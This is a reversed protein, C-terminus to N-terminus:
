IATVEDEGGLNLPDTASYIGESSLTNDFDFNDIASDVGLDVVISGVTYAGSTFNDLNVIDAGGGVSITIDGGITDGNQLDVNDVGSGGTYTFGGDLTGGTAMDVENAGAGLSIMLLDGIIALAMDIDDANKGGTITVSQNYVGDSDTISNLGNGLNFNASGTFINGIQLAITDTGTGGTYAFDADSLGGIGMETETVTLTNAGNGLSVSVELVTDEAPVVDVVDLSTLYVLDAGQGGTIALAGAITTPSSGGAGAFSFENAILKDASANFTVNGDIVTPTTYTQQFAGLHDEGGTSVRVLNVRTAVVGDGITLAAVNPTASSATATAISDNLYLEDKGAGGNFSVTGGVALTSDSATAASGSVNNITFIDLGNGGDVTIDGSITGNKAGTNTIMLTDNGNNFNVTIGGDLTFNSATSNFDIIVNDNRNSLKLILDGTVQYKGRATTGDTITVENNGTVDILLTQATVGRVTAQNATGSLVLDGEVNRISVAPVIRETLGELQLLGRRNKM